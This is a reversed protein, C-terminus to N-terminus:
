LLLLKDARVQELGLDGPRVQGQEHEKKKGRKKWDEVGNSYSKNEDGDVRNNVGVIVSNGGRLDEYIELGFVKGWGNGDNEV